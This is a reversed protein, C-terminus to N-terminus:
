ESSNQQNSPTSSPTSRTACSMWPPLGTVRSISRSAHSCFTIAHLWIQPILQTPLVHINNNQIFEQVLWAHHAPAGDHQLIWQNTAFKQPCRRRISQHLRQLIGQYIHGGIGLGRPIFERHVVGEKDFFAVLMVCQEALNSRPKPPHQQRPALWECTARKSAPDYCLMWSKDGMILKDILGRDRTQCHLLDTAIRHRHQKQVETLLHPIWCAPRKKLNMRKVLACHVTGIGLKTLTLLRAM